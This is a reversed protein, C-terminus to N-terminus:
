KVFHSPVLLVNDLYYTGEMIRVNEKILTKCIGTLNEVKEPNSTEIM